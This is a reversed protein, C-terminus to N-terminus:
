KEGLAELLLSAAQQGAHRKTPATASFVLDEDTLSCQVTFAENPPQGSHGVTEYVPLPRKSKQLLEQLATKPDKDVRGPQLDALPGKLLDLVVVRTPELGLDLWCAGLLAEFTDALVSTRRASGSKLDAPSMQIHESLDYREAVKALADGRVVSSRARTLWGETEAPFNLYLFDSIVLQLVADGM